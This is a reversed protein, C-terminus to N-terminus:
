VPDGDDAIFQRYAQKAVKPNASMHIMMLGEIQAMLAAAQNSRQTPTPADV